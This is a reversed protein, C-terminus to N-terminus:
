GSPPTPKLGSIVLARLVTRDSGHKSQSLYGAAGCRQGVSPAFHLESRLTLAGQCVARCYLNDPGQHIPLWLKPSLISHAGSCFCFGTPTALRRWLRPSNSFRVIVESLDRVPSSAPRETLLITAGARPFFRAFKLPRSASM